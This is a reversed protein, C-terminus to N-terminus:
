SVILVFKKEGNILAFRRGKATQQSVGMPTGMPTM